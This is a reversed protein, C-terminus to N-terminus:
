ERGRVAEELPVTLTYEFGAEKFAIAVEGVLSILQLGLGSKEPVKTLPGGREVWSFKLLVPDSLRDIKWDIEVRGSNAAFAGHKVANTALEHVILAFSQAFARGVVLPEGTTVARDGFASLEAEV